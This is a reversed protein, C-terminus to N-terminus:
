GQVMGDWRVRDVLVHTWDDGVDYAYIARRWV